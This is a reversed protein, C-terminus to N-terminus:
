FGRKGDYVKEKQIIRDIERIRKIVENIESSPTSSGTIIGVKNVGIFMEPIIENHSEIHYSNFLNKRSIKFLKTTNSSKKSGIILMLDVRKSLEEAERQREITYSCITNFVKLEYTRESILSVLTKFLELDQTTQAIIGRKKKFPLAKAEEENKIIKGEQNIHGQIGIIEPHNQDGIIMVEYGEEKLSKAIKQARKVYPCTGDVPIKRMKKAEEIKEPPLGHTRIIMRKTKIEDISEVTFINERELDKIVKENHILYGLCSVGGNEEATKRALKIAREVGYCFGRGKAIHIKM